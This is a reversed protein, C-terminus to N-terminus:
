YFISLFDSPPVYASYLSCSISIHSIAIKYLITLSIIVSLTVNSCLFLPLSSSLILSYRPLTNYTSVLLPTRRPALTHKTLRPFSTNSLLTILPSPLSSSTLSAVPLLCVMYPRRSWQLSKTNKNRQTLHSAM